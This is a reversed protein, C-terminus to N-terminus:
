IIVQTIIWHFQLISITSIMVNLLTEYGKAQLNCWCITQSIKTRSQRYFGNNERLFYLIEEGFKILRKYLFPDMLPSTDFYPSKELLPSCIAKTSWGRPNTRITKLLFGVKWSDLVKWPTNFKIEGKRLEESFCTVEM